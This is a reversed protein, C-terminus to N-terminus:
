NYSLNYDCTCSSAFLIALFQSSTPRRDLTHGALKQLLRPQSRWAVQSLTRINREVSNCSTQYRKAIEPYLCKTVSHIREEDEKMLM